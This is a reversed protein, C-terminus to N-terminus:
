ACGGLQLVTVAQVVTGLFGLLPALSLDHFYLGLSGLNLVISAVSFFSIWFASITMTMAMSIPSSPSSPVVGPLVSLSSKSVNQNRKAAPAFTSVSASLGTYTTLLQMLVSQLTNYFDPANLTGPAHPSLTYARFQLCTTAICTLLTLAQLTPYSLLFVRYPSSSSSSPSTYRHPLEEYISHTDTNTSASASPESSPCSTWSTISARRLITSGGFSASRSVVLPSFSTGADKYLEFSIMAINVLGKLTALMCEANRLIAPVVQSYKALEMQLLPVCRDLMGALRKLNEVCRLYEHARVRTEEFAAVFNTLCQEWIDGACASTLYSIPGLSHLTTRRKWLSARHQESALHSSKAILMDVNSCISAVNDLAARFPSPHSTSTSLYGPSTILQNSIVVHTFTSYHLFTRKPFIGEQGQQTLNKGWCWGHGIDSIIVHDFQSISLEGPCRPVYTDSANATLTHECLYWRQFGLSISCTWKCPAIYTRSM